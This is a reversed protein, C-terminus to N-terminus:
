PSIKAVALAVSVPAAIWIHDDPAIALEANSTSVQGSLSWMENGDADWKRVISNAVEPDYYGAVVAGVSDVDLLVEDYQPLDVSWAVDFGDDLKMVRFTPYGSAVAVSGDGGVAVSALSTVEGFTTSDVLNGAATYRAFYPSYSNNSIFRRQGVVIASDSAGIEVDAFYYEWFQDGADVVSWTPSDGIMPSGAPWSAVSRYEVAVYSGDDRAALGDRGAVRDDGCVETYEGAGSISYTCSSAGLIWLDGALTATRVPTEPLLEDFTQVLTADNALEALYASDDGCYGTASVLVNGDRFQPPTTFSGDCFSLGQEVFTAVVTGSVVCDVNCGSGNANAAGNDCAEPGGLQGDGCYPGLASCDAACGGYGGDNTGDDCVEADTVEADGCYPALSACDMNCGGYSGDNTGDDCVEDGEVMGDGCVAADTTNSTTDPDTPSTTSPSTTPDGSTDPESTTMTTDVSGNDTSADDTDGLTDTDVTPDAPDFPCGAALLVVVVLRRPSTIM